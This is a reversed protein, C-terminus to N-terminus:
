RSSGSKTIIKAEYLVKGGSTVREVGQISGAAAKKQLATRAAVPISNLDAPDEMELVNGKSDFTYSRPNGNYTTEVEYEVKGGESEKGISVIPSNDLTQKIAAQVPRPM